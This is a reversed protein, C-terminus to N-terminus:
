FVESSSFFMYTSLSIIYYLTLVLVTNLQNLIRDVSM